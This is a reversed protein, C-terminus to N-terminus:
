DYCGATPKGEEDAAGFGIRQKGFGIESQCGSGCAGM